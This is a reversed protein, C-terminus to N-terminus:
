LTKLWFSGGARYAPGQGISDLLPFILEGLEKDFVIFFNPLIIELKSGEALLYCALLYQESFFRWHWQPPYDSPLFIDHFEVLVGPKLRPLVDLFVVTADSNTFSRHSNDIFLIDGAELGDFVALDVDEVPQRIIEDCIRDVETRPNPDISVIRTGLKHDRVARAAFRTSNGSGVELYTKPAQMCLLSYIAVADLGSLWQNIWYPEASEANEPPLADIKRLDEKYTFFSNLYRKYRERGRDIIEHLKQHPPKGFGYRFQPNIPYDLEIHRLSM